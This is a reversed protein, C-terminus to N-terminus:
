CNVDRMSAWRASRTNRSFILRLQPPNVPKTPRGVLNWDSLRASRGCKLITLFVSGVAVTWEMRSVFRAKFHLFHALRLRLPGASNTKHAPVDVFVVNSPFNGRYFPQQRRLMGYARGASLHTRYMEYMFLLLLCRIKFSVVNCQLQICLFLCYLRYRINHSASQSM